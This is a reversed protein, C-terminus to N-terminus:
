HEFIHILQYELAKCRNTKNILYNKTQRTSLIIIYDM